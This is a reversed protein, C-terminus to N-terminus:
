PLPLLDMVVVWVNLALFVAAGLLVSALVRRSRKVASPKM